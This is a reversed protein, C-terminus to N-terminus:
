SPTKGNWQGRSLVRGFRAWASRLSRATAPGLYRVVNRLNRGEYTSVFRPQPRGGRALQFFPPKAEPDFHKCSMIEAIYAIREHDTRNPRTRHLLLSSFLALDGPEAVLAVEKSDDGRWTVHGGVHVHPLIGKKHSRPILFLGGNDPNMKTLPVWLQVYADQIGNYGNDQHWPFEVGGPMKFVAQDKRLWFDKGAFLSVLEVIKPQSVFEQIFPSNHHLYQRFLLGRENLLSPKRPRAHRVEEELARVEERSFFGRLVVFGQEDFEARLADPDYVAKQLSM